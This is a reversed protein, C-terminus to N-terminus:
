WRGWQAIGGLDRIPLCGRVNFMGLIGTRSRCCYGGCFLASSSTRFQRVPDHQDGVLVSRREIKVGVTTLYDELFWGPVFQRILSNKEVANAGIM